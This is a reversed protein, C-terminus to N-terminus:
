IAKVLGGDIILSSGTIYTSADSVLFAVVKAFEEPKGYRGLPITNKSKEEIEERTVGQKDAKMQDLFAVRDTAIRGPAIVNVLINFQGLEEALSKSLGVIGTRFTNSLILGPIPVKISSSAINIIRGGRKKMDPLVERIVRIYSLLNLNFASIWDEDSFKEFDGGPPGGANNVLIDIEGFVENTVKVLLKIEDPNTIDARFYEVKGKGIFELEQKTKQLKEEDRSTIMVYAGEEVLQAAIAKGLGQSSAVVLAVKGALNLNM